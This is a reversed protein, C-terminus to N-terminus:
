LNELTMNTTVPNSPDTLNFDPSQTDKYGSRIARISYTGVPVYFYYKGQANTVGNETQVGNRFLVVTTNAVAGVGPVTITGTLTYPAGPPNVNGDDRLTLTGIDNLGFHVSVSKSGSATAKVALVDTTIPASDSTPIETLLFFGNSDAQVTDGTASITVFAGSAGTKNDPLLVQGYVQGINVFLELDTNVGSTVPKTFAVTQTVTDSLKITATRVGVTVNQMEFFGVPHNADANDRTRTTATVGGITVPVGAAGKDSDLSNKVIGRVTNSVSGGGGGGGGGCGALLGLALFAVVLFLHKVLRM